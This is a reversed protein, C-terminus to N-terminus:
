GSENLNGKNKLLAVVDAERDAEECRSQGRGSELAEGDEVSSGPTITKFYM